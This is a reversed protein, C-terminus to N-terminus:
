ADAAEGALAALAAEAAAPDFAPAPRRLAEARAVRALSRGALRPVEVLVGEMEERLGNCHLVLDCGAALAARAREGHSGSLAGMSLDDTMLAGDFGIRERITRVVAPSLTAPREPDIATFVVHATMALPLDRLHLFPLFDAADLEGATAVVQPLGEHSDTGTRGHGPLHKMVPLVGGALLGAAVERGRLAIEAASTGLARDAIIPHTGPVPVDLMPVCNVDIGVARLEAAIMRYRLWLGRLLDAESRFSRAFARPSEWGRWHPPRLRAVRGGEQDILVPADRGVAARLADTLARLEAPTGANRAFLIFGWPDAERFFAAEEPGLRPGLCGLIVARPASM